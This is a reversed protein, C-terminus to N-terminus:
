SERFLTIPQTDTDTFLVVLLLPRCVYSLHVRLVVEGWQGRQSTSAGRVDTKTVSLVDLYTGASTIGFLDAMADQIAKRITLVDVDIDANPASQLSISLRIYHYVTPLPTLPM